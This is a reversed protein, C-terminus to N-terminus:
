GNGVDGGGNVYARLYLEGRETQSIIKPDEADFVLYDPHRIAERRTNNDRVVVDFREAILATIEKVPARGGLEALAVLVRVLSSPEPCTAPALWSSDDNSGEVLELNICLDKYVRLWSEARSLKRPASLGSINGISLALVDLDPRLVPISLDILYSGKVISSPIATIEGEAGVDLLQMSQLYLAEKGSINDKERCLTILAPKFLFDSENRLFEVGTPIGGAGDTESSITLRKRPFIHLEIRATDKIAGSQYGLVSFPASREIDARKEPALAVQEIDSANVPKLRLTTEPAPQIVVARAAEIRRTSEIEKPLNGRLVRALMLLELYRGVRDGLPKGEISTAFHMEASAARMMAFRPPAPQELFPYKRLLGPSIEEHLAEISRLATVAVDVNFGGGEAAGKEYKLIHEASLDECASLFADFDSHAELTRLNSRALKLVAERRTGATHVRLANLFPDSHDLILGLRLLDAVSGENDNGAPPTYLIRKIVLAIVERAYMDLSTENKFVYYHFEKTGGRGILGGAKGTDILAITSLLHTRRIVVLILPLAAYRDDIEINAKISTLAGTAEMEVMAALEVRQSTTPNILYKGDSLAAAAWAIPANESMTGEFGIVRM